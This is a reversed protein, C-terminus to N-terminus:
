MLGYRRLKNFFKTRNTNLASVTEDPDNHYKHLLRTLLRKEIEQFDGQLFPDESESVPKDELERIHANLRDVLYQLQLNQQQAHELQEQIIDAENLVANRTDDDILRAFDAGLEELTVIDSQTRMVAREIVSRLETVNGPWRYTTIAKTVDQAFKLVGKNMRMAQRQMFFQAVNLIDPQEHLPPLYVIEADCHDALDRCRAPLERPDQEYKATSVEDDRLTITMYLEVTGESAVHDISEMIDSLIESSLRDVNKILLSGGIASKILGANESDGFMDLALITEPIDAADIQLFPGDSNDQHASLALVTKGTGHEGALIIPTELSKLDELVAKQANTFEIEALAYARIQQSCLTHVQSKLLNM